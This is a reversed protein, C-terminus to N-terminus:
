FCATSKLSMFVNSLKVTKHSKDNFGHHKGSSQKLVSLNLFQFLGNLKPQFFLEYGSVVQVLFSTECIGPKSTGSSYSLLATRTDDLPDVHYNQSSVWNSLLLAFTLCFFMKKISEFLPLSVRAKMTLSQGCEQM